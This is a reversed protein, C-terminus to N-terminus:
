EGAVVDFQQADIADCRMAAANVLFSSSQRLLAVVLLVRRDRARPRMM